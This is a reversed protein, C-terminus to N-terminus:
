MVAMAPVDAGLERHAIMSALDLGFAFPSAAGGQFGLAGEAGSALGGFLSFQPFPAVQVEEKANEIVLAVEPEAEQEPSSATTPSSPMSYSLVFADSPRLRDEEEDDDEGLPNVTLPAVHHKKSRRKRRRRSRPEEGDEADATPPPPVIAADDVDAFTNPRADHLSSARHLPLEAAVSCPRAEEDDDDLQAGGLMRHLVLRIDELLRPAQGLAQM